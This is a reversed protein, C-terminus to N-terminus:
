GKKTTEQMSRRPIAESCKKRKFQSYHFLAM